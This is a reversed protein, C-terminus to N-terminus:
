YFVSCQRSAPPFSASIADTVEGEVAKAVIDAKNEGWAMLAIRRARMITGVGMTLAFRPVNDIGLFDRAADERTVKDLTIMRTPSDQASGPENFGIHGTRGIGLIQLDIGGAEEIKAEYDRCARFVQERSVTALRFISRPIRCTWM